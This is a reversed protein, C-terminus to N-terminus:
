GVRCSEKGILIGSQLDLAKCHLLMQAAEAPQEIRCPAQCGSHPTFFAPFEDATWSLLLFSVTSGFLFKAQITCSMNGHWYCLAATAACVCGLSWQWIPQRADVYDIYSSILCLWALPWPLAKCSVLGIRSMEACIHM